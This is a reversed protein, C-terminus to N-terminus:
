RCFAYMLPCINHKNEEQDNYRSNENTKWNFVEYKLYKYGVYKLYKYLDYERSSVEKGVRGDFRQFKQGNKVIGLCWHLANSVLFMTALGLESKIVDSTQHLMNSTPSAGGLRQLPDM